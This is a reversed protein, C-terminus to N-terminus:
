SHKPAGSKSKRIGLLRGAYYVIITLWFFQMWNLTLWRPDLQPFLEAGLGAWTWAMWLITGFLLGPVSLCLAVFASIAGVIVLGFATLGLLLAGTKLWGLVGGSKKKGSDIVSVAFQVFQGVYKQVFEKLSKINM